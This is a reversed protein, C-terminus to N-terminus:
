TQGGLQSGLDWTQSGLHPMAGKPLACFGAAVQTVPLLESTSYPGCKRLSYPVRYGIQVRYTAFFLARESNTTFFLSVPLKPFPEM